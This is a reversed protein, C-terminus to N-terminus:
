PDEWYISEATESKPMKCESHRNKYLFIELSILYFVAHLINLWTMKELKFIHEYNWQGCFSSATFVQDSHHVAQQSYPECLAWSILNSHKVKFDLSPRLKQWFTWREGVRVINKLHRIWHISTMIMQTTRSFKNTINQHTSQSSAEMKWNSVNKQPTMTLTEIVTIFCWMWLSNPLFPNLQSISRCPLGVNFSALCSSLCPLFRSAPASASAM